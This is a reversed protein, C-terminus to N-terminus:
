EAILERSTRIGIKTGRARMQKRFEAADDPHCIAGVVNGDGDRIVSSQRRWAIAATLLDVETSELPRAFTYTNRIASPKRIM